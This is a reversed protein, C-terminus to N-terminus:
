FNYGVKLRVEQKTKEILHLGRDDQEPFKEGGGRWQPLWTLTAWWHRDGYHLSPGGQISWRETGVETEFETEYFAEMGVSWNPAFRYSLGTGAMFEIEMEPDTPWDFGAPLNDIAKRKAYTTEIGLNSAWVLQGDLFYKQGLLKVNMSYTNKDQGSHPDLWNYEFGINTALGYGDLAPTLFAYKASAEVGSPKFTFKRDAPLYGDILLGSTDIGMGKITFAASFRNTYGHELELEYDNATYHGAGKDSRHTIIGYLETAGKPLPEAGKIYGLLNEDAQAPLNAAIGLTLFTSFALTKKTASMAM